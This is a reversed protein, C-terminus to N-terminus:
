KVIHVFGFIGLARLSAEDVGEPKPPPAMLHMNEKLLHVRGEAAMM